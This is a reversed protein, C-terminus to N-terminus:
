CNVRRFRHSNSRPKAVAARGKGSPCGILPEGLPLREAAWYARDRERSRQNRRTTRQRRLCPGGLVDPIEGVRIGRKAVIAELRGRMDTDLRDRDTWVTALKESMPGIENRQDHVIAQGALGIACFEREAPEVNALEPVGRICSGMGASRSLVPRTAAPIAASWYQNEPSAEPPHHKQWTLWAQESNAFVAYIYQAEATPKRDVAQSQGPDAAAATGSWTLRALLAGLLM